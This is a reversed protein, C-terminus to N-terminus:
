SLEQVPIFLWSRGKKKDTREWAMGEPDQNKSWRHFKYTNKYKNWMASITNSKANWREALEDGTLEMGVDQCSLGTIENETVKYSSAVELTRYDIKDPREEPEDWIDLKDEQSISKIEESVSRNKDAEVASDNAIDTSLPSVSSLGTPTLYQSNRHNSHERTTECPEINVNLGQALHTILEGLMDGQYFQLLKEAAKKPSDMRVSKSRDKIGLLDKVFNNLERSYAPERDEDEPISNTNIYQKLRIGILDRKDVYEREEATLNESDKINRGLQAAVDIAILARDLLEAIEPIAEAARNAARLNEQQRSSLNDLKGCHSRSTPDVLDNREGQRSEYIIARFNRQVSQGM